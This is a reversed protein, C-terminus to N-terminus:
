LIKFFYTNMYIRVCSKVSYFTVALGSFWSSSKHPSCILNREYVLSILKFCDLYHYWSDDVIESDSISNTVM